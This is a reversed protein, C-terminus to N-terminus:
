LSSFVQAATAQDYVKAHRPVRPKVQLGFEILVVVTQRNNEHGAGAVSLAADIGHFPARHIEQLLRDLIVHQELCYCVRDLFYLNPILSFVTLACRPRTMCLAPALDMM